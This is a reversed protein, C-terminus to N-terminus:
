IFYKSTCNGIHPAPPSSRESNAQALKAPIFCACVQTIDPNWALGAATLMGPWIFPHHTVQSLGSWHSIILGLGGHATAQKVANWINTIAAEPCGALSCCLSLPPKHFVNGLCVHYRQMELSVGIALFILNSFFHFFVKQSTFLLSALSFVM